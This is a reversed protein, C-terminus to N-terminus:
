GRLWFREFIGELIEAFTFKIELSKWNWESYVVFLLLELKWTSITTFLYLCDEWIVDNRVSPINKAFFWYFASSTLKIQYIKYGRELCPNILSFDLVTGARIHSQRYHLYRPLFADFHVITNTNFFICWVSTLSQNKKQGSPSRYSM